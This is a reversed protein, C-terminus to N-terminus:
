TAPEFAFFSTETNCTHRIRWLGLSNRAHGAMLGVMAGLTLMNATHM